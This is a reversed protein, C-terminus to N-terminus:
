KFEIRFVFSPRAPFLANLLTAEKENVLLDPADADGLLQDLSRYGFM